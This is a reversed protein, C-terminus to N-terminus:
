QPASRAKPPWGDVLRDLRTENETQNLRDRREHAPGCADRCTAVDAGDIVPNSKPQEREDASAHNEM